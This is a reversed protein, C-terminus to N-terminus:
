PIKQSDGKIIRYNDATNDKSSFEIITGAEICTLQHPNNPPIVVVDGVKLSTEIEDANNLNYYKLYFQGSLIYFTEHKEKHWHMSSVAGAKDYILLKGAYGFEGFFNAIITERGWGKPINHAQKINITQKNFPISM